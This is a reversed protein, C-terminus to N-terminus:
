EISIQLKNTTHNEELHNFKCIEAQFMLQFSGIPGHRNKAVIIDIIQNNINEHNKYLMLILDADQEISNHVLCNNIFFNHYIKLHLDYVHNKKLYTIQHTLCLELHFMRNLSNNHKISNLRGHKLHDKKVWKNYQLLRHNHTLYVVKTKKNTILFIHQKHTRDLDLQNIRNLLYFSKFAHVTEIYQIRNQRKVKPVHYNDICGSERLDSLLPRKNSRNEINRNLQSLVIFTSDIKQALLKLSRTINGIEKSRNDINEQEVRILQLYDIIIIQNNLQSEQCRDKINDISSNSSDNIRIPSRSLRNCTKQINLWQKETLIKKQIIQISINSILAILKDLIETKSMELSFM